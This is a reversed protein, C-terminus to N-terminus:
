KYQILSRSSLLTKSLSPDSHPSSPCDLWFDDKRKKESKRRTGGSEGVGKLRQGHTWVTHTDTFSLVSSSSPWCFSSYSHSHSLCPVSQMICVTWQNGVMIKEKKSIIMVHHRLCILLYRAYIMSKNPLFTSLASIIFGDRQISFIAWEWKSETPLHYKIMMMMLDSVYTQM